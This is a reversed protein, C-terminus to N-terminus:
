ARPASGDLQETVLLHHGLGLPELPHPDGIRVDALGTNHALTWALSRLLEWAALLDQEGVNPFGLFLISKIDSM